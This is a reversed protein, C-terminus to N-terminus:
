HRPLRGASASGALALVGINTVLGSGLDYGFDPHFEAVKDNIVHGHQDRHLAHLRTGFLMRAFRQADEERPLYALRGGVLPLRIARLSGSM